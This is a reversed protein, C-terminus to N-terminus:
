VTLSVGGFQRRAKLVINHVGGFISRSKDDCYRVRSAAAPNLLYKQLTHVIRHKM